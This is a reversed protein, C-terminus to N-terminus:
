GQGPWVWSVEMCEFKEKVHLAIGGERRRKRGGWFLKYGYKTTKWEHSNEWWTETNETTDCSESQVCHELKEQKGDLSCVNTCVFKLHSSKANKGKSFTSPANRVVRTPLSM